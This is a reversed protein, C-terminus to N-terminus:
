QGSPRWRHTVVIGVLYLCVSALSIISSLLVILSTALPISATILSYHYIGEVLIFLYYPAGVAFLGLMLGRAYRFGQLTSVGVAFGALSILVSLGAFGNFGVPYVALSVISIFLRLASLVILLQSITRVPKPLERSRPPQPNASNDHRTEKAVETIALKPATEIPPSVESPTEPEAIDRSIPTGQDVRSKDADKRLLAEKSPADRQEPLSKYLTEVIGRAFSGVAERLAPNSFDSYRFKQWDVYQREAVFSLVSNNRWQGENQLGQVPVYLIPFILDSRGLARERALFTDFEFQCYKSNVMRPTVIPIFFVAQAAANRIETEWLTGPAIAEKDQWLRFTTKSRGLQARLERQIADRLGSLMGGFDEDDERSYSFFGVVEPLEALSSM